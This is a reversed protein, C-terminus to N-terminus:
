SLPYYHILALEEESSSSKVSFVLDDYDQISPQNREDDIKESTYESM